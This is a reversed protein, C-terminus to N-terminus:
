GAAMQAEAAIVEAMPRALMEALINRVSIWFADDGAVAASVFGAHRLADVIGAADKGSTAAALAGARPDRLEYPACDHVSGSVHRAWAATAFAFARCDVERARADALASFIRQPMKESGDMAIQFTQHAIAPNGFREALAAAYAATDIGEIGPLTAAAAALHRRVLAALAPDAMVDRVFARGAHFGAYALMSHTGNLMRLKMAEFDAVRETFIAGAAEWAPRGTPFDDEIVWQCFPETEIAALDDCGTLRAAEALTEATAAPTIRDVMTSPFAVEAAIWAALEPDTRRAFDVAAGRLLRGNDPLNDCCLVTFPPTGAARRMALARVIMGIVGQPAEPQALDAAIAPHSPDCGEAARDLGYAKETVTVSVIRVAPDAMRALVPAPDGASCAAGSIAGIVRARTEAGKEVLTYLGNQPALEESARPSRLSVGFIRWDGGAAAMAADTMAAQHAKHFAGLGLHVIGTGQAAPDYGPRMAEPVQSLTSLRM